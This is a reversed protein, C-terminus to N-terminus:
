HSLDQKCESCGSEDARAPFDDKHYSQSLGAFVTGAKVSSNLLKTQRFLTGLM